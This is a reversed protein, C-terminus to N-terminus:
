LSRVRIIGPIGSLQSLTDDKIQTEVDIITYAYNGKSKNIMNSINIHEAALCSTIQGVMNPVNKHAVTIRQASDPCPPLECEPYNVSNSINGNELFNRLETVAMFACNEESEPTSAGLHPIAIINEVGLLKDNPFDTVYKAIHGSELAELLDDDNVLQGRSFNLLRVGKKMKAITDRNIIEKTKDLLPIHVSIYDSEALLDDINDSRHIGRSLRWASQVSIFPDYGTVEMGIAHADNAVMVGIAGLGIIGIKKGKVEPGAFKSKGKEVMSAVDVGNGKLSNAWQIAEVIRRSSLLIGALVLEKVANANAGPTNFVVIGKETCKEIPINNVGAGARSVALLSSPIEMDHMNYSRLLIGHPEAIDSSVEYLNAPLLDLGNQSINNLVKIKYM